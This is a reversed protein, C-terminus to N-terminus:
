SINAIHEDIASILKAKAEFLAAGPFQAAAMTQHGGGGLKEMIVHVNMRGLSRASINVGKSTRFIVFSADVNEIELLEDAAQASAIRTDADPEDDVSIACREYIEASCILKSRKQICGVSNAFLGKVALMDAGLKRLFAAAQFTRVGTRMIFNKTDLMIGALMADAYYSQLKEIGSWYQIIEAVIECTSSAYPENHFIVAKEIHNVSQRHHDIVAVKKIRELLEPYEVTDKGHTDVVILLAEDDIRKLAEDMTVFIDDEGTLNDELRHIIASALTNNVNTVMRVYMDPKLIRIAGCLGAGAGICDMDSHAHGMLYIESSTNIFESLANAVIRIKVKTNKEIGKSVGGFFEFDSDSKVAAQDGGRGHAMELAQRALKESESLNSSSMGVGISLTVLSQESVPIARVSDLIKFRAEIIERLRREELIVFFRDSSTKKLVGKHEEFYAELLREVRIMIRAKEYEKENALIDEYNDVSILMVSPKSNLYETELAIYDSMDEFYLLVITSVVEGSNLDLKESAVATVKFKDSRLEVATDVNDMVAELNIDAVKSVHVGFADPGYIQETFAMNYWIIIGEDDVIAAPAPFRYLADRETLDLHSETETVFRRMSRCVAKFSLLFAIASLSILGLLIWFSLESVVGYLAFACILSVSVLVMSIILFVTWRKGTM